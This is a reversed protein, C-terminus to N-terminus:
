AAAPCDLQVKPTAEAEKEWTETDTAFESGDDDPDSDSHLDALFRESSLNFPAVINKDQQLSGRREQPRDNAVLGPLSSRRPRRHAHVMPVLLSSSSSGAYGVGNEQSTDPVLLSNSDSLSTQLGSLSMQSKDLGFRLSPLSGDEMLRSSHTSSHRSDSMISMASLSAHGDASLVAIVDQQAGPPKAMSHRSRMELGQLKSQKTEEVREVNQKKVELTPERRTTTAFEDDSDSEGDLDDPMTPREQKLAQLLQSDRVSSNLCRRSSRRSLALSGCSMSMDMTNTNSARLRSSHQGITGCSKPVKPTESTRPRRCRRVGEPTALCPLDNRTTADSKASRVTSRPIIESKCMDNSSVDLIGRAQTSRRTSCDKRTTADSKASRVTSRPIIESKCMDDSSVDLIDRLQTSASTEKKSKIRRSSSRRFSVDKTLRKSRSKSRRLTFASESASMRLEKAKNTSGQRRSARTRRGRKTCDKSSQVMQTSEDLTASRKPLSKALKSESEKVEPTSKARRIRGTSIRKESTKKKREAMAASTDPKEERPARRVPVKKSEELSKCRALQKSRSLRENTRTRRTKTTSKATGGGKKGATPEKTASTVLRSAAEVGHNSIAFSLETLRKATAAELGNSKKAAKIKEASSPRKIRALDASSGVLFVDQVSLPTAEATSACRRLTSKKTMKGEQSKVRRLARSSKPKSLRPLLAPLQEGNPPPVQAEKKGDDSLQLNSGSSAVNNNSPRTVRAMGSVSIKNVEVTSSCRRLTSKKAANREYSRVRQLAGGSGSLLPPVQVPEENTSDDPNFQLSSSSAANWRRDSRRRRRSHGTPTKRAEDEETEREPVTKVVAVSEYLANEVFSSNAVINGLLSSGVSKYKRQTLPPATLDDNDHSHAQRTADKM